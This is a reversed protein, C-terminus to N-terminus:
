VHFSMPPAGEKLGNLMLNKGKKGMMMTVMVVVSM